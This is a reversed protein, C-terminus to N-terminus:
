VSWNNNADKVFVKIVKAGDGASATELDAGYISCSVPTSAATTTTGHMNTSGGTTPIETGADHLSSTNPVVRVTWEVFAENASFSFASVNYGSVKSIKAVDPGVITVVPATMDLVTTSTVEASVNGVDDMFKAKITKSGDGTTLYVSASVDYAVWSADAESIATSSGSTAAIDGYLKMYSAGTASLTATISLSSAYGPTSISCSSPATTDLTLQFYAAM